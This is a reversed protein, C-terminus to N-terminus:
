MAVNNYFAHDRNEAHIIYFVYTRQVQDRELIRELDREVYEPRKDLNRIMNSPKKPRQTSVKGSYFSIIFFSDNTFLFSSSYIM